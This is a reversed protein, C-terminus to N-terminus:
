ETHCSPSSDRIVLRTPLDIHAPPAAPTDIRRLFLGAATRGIDEFPQAVSTLGVGSSLTQVIDDFGVLAVDEPVRLDLQRLRRVTREAEYDNFGIAATPRKDTPQRFITDFLTWDEGNFSPATLVLEDRDTNLATYMAHLYGQLRDQVPNIPESKTIYAIRRHGQQLLHTAAAFMGQYNESGAFDAEVGPLMRDILCLPLRQSVEQILGRNSRYAYPYFIAGGFGQDLVYQLHAAERDANEQETGVIEGLNLFVAHYGAQGLAQNMGWFIRQQATRGTDLPGGHWMVLAVLRSASLKAAAASPDSPGSQAQVVPSCYPRRSVLGEEVLQTIAARVVRRHVGMEEALAREAPLREGHTYRGLHIGERLMETAAGLSTTSLRTAPPAARKTTEVLM